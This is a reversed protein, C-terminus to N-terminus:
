LSHQYHLHRPLHLDDELPCSGQVDFRIDPEPHLGGGNPASMPRVAPSIARHEPQVRCLHNGNYVSELRLTHEITQLKHVIVVPALNRVDVIDTYSSSFRGPEICTKHMFTSRHTQKIDSTPQGNIVITRM